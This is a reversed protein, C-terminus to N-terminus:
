LQSCSELKLPAGMADLIPCESTPGEGSCTAALETLTEKMMQLDRMKDEIDKIKNETREKVDACTTDPDVRLTLLESIKKTSPTTARIMRESFRANSWNM